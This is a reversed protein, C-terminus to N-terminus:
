LYKRAVHRQRLGNLDGPPAQYGERLLEAHLKAFFDDEPHSGLEMLFRAVLKSLSTHHRQAYAKGIDIIKQDISLTLKSM